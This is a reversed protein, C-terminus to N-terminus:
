SATSGTATLSTPTAPQIGDGGSSTAPGVGKPTYNADTTLVIKDIMVGDERMWVNVVQEGTSAVELTAPAGDMALTTWVWSGFTGTEIRDATAQPDQDLGVHVSNSGGDTAFMRFWVYHTGSTTFDVVYDMRPSFATYYGAGEFGDADDDLAAMAKGGSASVDSFLKWDDIVGPLNGSFHEAEISVIGQSGRSQVTPVQPTDATWERFSSENGETDSATVAYYYTIGNTVATDTYDSTPVSSAILTYGGLPNTSRYVSYGALDSEGNEDWDLVVEEDNAAAILGTPQIPPVDGGENISSDITLTVLVENPSAGTPVTYRVRFAETLKDRGAIYTEITVEDIVEVLPPGVNSQVDLTLGPFTWISEGFDGLQVDEANILLDLDGGALDGAFITMSEQTVEVDTKGSNPVALWSLNSSTPHDWHMSGLVYQISSKRQGVVGGMMWDQAIMATIQKVETAPQVTKLHLEIFHPGEFNELKSLVDSPVEQGLLVAAAANEMEFDWPGLPAIKPDDLALAIEMGLISAYRTMDLGHVRFFPGGSNKLDPHYFASVTEWLLTGMEKGMQRTEESPALRRWAALAVLMVGSYTPSNFEDFANGNGKFTRYADWAKAEGTATFESNSLLTGAFELLFASMVVINSNTPSVDRAFAGAAAFYLATEIREVIASDLRDRLLSHIVILDTGIFERWNVDYSSDTASKPWNGYSNSSASGTTMQQVLLWDLIVGARARDGEADRYLLAMAYRTSSRTGNLTEYGKEAIWDIFSQKYSSLSGYPTFQEPPASHLAARVGFGLLLITALSRLM